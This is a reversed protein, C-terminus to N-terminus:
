RTGAVAVTLLVPTTIILAKAMLAMASSMPLLGGLATIIPISCGRILAPSGPQGLGGGNQTVGGNVYERNLLANYWYLTDEPTFFGGPGDVPGATGNMRYGMVEEFNFWLYEFEEQSVMYALNTLIILWERAYLGNVERWKGDKENAFQM